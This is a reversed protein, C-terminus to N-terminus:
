VVEEMDKALRELLRQSRKRAAADTIGLAKGIEKFDLGYYFRMIVLRRDDDKLAKIVELMRRRSLQDWIPDEDSKEPPLAGSEVQERRKIKQRRRVAVSKALVCIYAKLSGRQLDIKERNKWLSIYIDGVTEDIDERPCGSLKDNVIAGVYPGYKDGILKIGEHSDQELVKLLEADEM